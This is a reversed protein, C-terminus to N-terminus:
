SVPLKQIESLRAEIAGVIKESKEMEKALNLMRFLVAESKTNNLASKLSLFKSNIVETLEEDSFTEIRKEKEEVPEKRYAEILVGAEFLKRNMKEVFLVEKQTWVDLFESEEGPLGELSVGMPQDSFPDLATVYVKGLITKKYTKLPDKNQMAAFVERNEDQM